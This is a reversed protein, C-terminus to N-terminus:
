VGAVRSLFHFRTLVALERPLHGETIVEDRGGGVPLRQEASSLSKGFIQRTCNNYTDHRWPIM